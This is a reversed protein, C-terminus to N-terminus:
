PSRNRRLHTVYRFFLHSFLIIRWYIKILFTSTSKSSSTSSNNNHRRYLILKSPEFHVNGFLEAVLGIWWDHMPVNKPFPLIYNVLSRRFAICCGLYSNKVLNKFLGRNSSRLEFFSSYLVKLDSNVIYCDSVVLDFFHLYNVMSAVKSFLWIDDQDSLFIFECSAQTILFEFNRVIGLNHNLFLKIRSDIISSIIEITGDTSGDDSILLETVTDDSLISQIQDFIFSKGNFTALCVSVTM